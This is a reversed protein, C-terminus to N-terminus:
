TTTAGAQRPKTFVVNNAKGLTGCLDKQRPFLLYQVEKKQTADYTKLFHEIMYIRTRDMVCKVYEKRLYDFDIIKKTKKTNM